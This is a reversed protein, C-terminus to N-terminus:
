RKLKIEVQENINKIEKDIEGIDFGVIEDDNIDYKEKINLIKIVSQNIREESIKGQRVKKIIYKMISKVKRASLGMLIIDNGAEIAKYTARKMTYRLRIAFMKIDDTLILGKYNYKEVLYKNIIKKSLSAPDKKDVDKIILHGVMIGDTGNKIAEEFPIMDDKELEEITRSIKPVRFHSDKATSGHGPFHKIVSIVKQNQIEKM